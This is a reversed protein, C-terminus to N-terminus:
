GVRSVELAAKRGLRSVYLYPIVLALVLSVLMVILNLENLIIPYIVLRDVTVFTNIFQNSSGYGGIFGSVVGVAVSFIIVPLILSYVIRVTYRGMGRAKLVAIDRRLSRMYVSSALVMVIVVLGASYVNFPYLIRQSQGFTELFTAGSSFSRGFSALAQGADEFVQMLTTLRVPGKSLIRFSVLGHQPLRYERVNDYHTVIGNILGRPDILLYGDIALRVGEEDSSYKGEWAPVVLLEIDEPYEGFLNEFMSAFRGTAYVGEELDAEGTSFMWDKLNFISGVRDSPILIGLTVETVMGRHNIYSPIDMVLIAPESLSSNLLTALRDGLEGVTTENVVRMYILYEYEYQSAGTYDNIFAISRGMFVMYYMMLFLILAVLFATKPIMGPLRMSYRYSISGVPGAVAGSLSKTLRAVLGTRHLVYNIVFYPFVVPAIIEMFGSIMAYILLLIGLLGMGFLDPTFTFGSAWEVIKLCSLIFLITVTTSPRWEVREEGHLYVRSAELPGMRVIQGYVKRYALLVFLAGLVVTALLVDLSYFLPSVEISIGVVRALSDGTLSALLIGILAAVLFLIITVVLFSLSISRSGVGRLRLIGIDRRYNSVVLDLVIYTLYITAFAYPISSWAISFNLALDIFNAFTLQSEILNVWSVPSDLIATIRGSLQGGLSAANENITDVDLGLYDLSVRVLIELGGVFERDGIDVLGPELFVTDLSLEDAIPIQPGFPSGVFGTDVEIIGKVRTEISGEEGYLGIVVPDGVDILAIDAFDMSIYVGEEVSPDESIVQMGALELFSLLDPYVIAVDMFGSENGVEVSTPYYMLLAYSELRDDSGLFDLIEAVERGTYDGEYRLILHPTVADVLARIREVRTANSLVMPTSVIMSILIFIIFLTALRYGTRAFYKYVVGPM